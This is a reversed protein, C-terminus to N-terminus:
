HNFAELRADQYQRDNNEWDDQTILFGIKSKGNYLWAEWGVYEPKYRRKQYPSKAHFIIKTFKYGKKLLENALETKNM